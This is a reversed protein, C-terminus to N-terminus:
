KLPTAVGNSDIKWGDVITNVAMEGSSKFYYWEGDLKLWGTVMKGGSNLYYWKGDLKLWGTAM